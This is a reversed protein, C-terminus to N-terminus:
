GISGSWGSCTPYRFGHDISLRAALQQALAKPVILAPTGSKGHRLALPSYVTRSPLSTM